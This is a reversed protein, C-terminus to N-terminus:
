GHLIDEELDIYRAEKYDAAKMWYTWLTGYEVDISYLNGGCYKYVIVKDPRDVGHHEFAFISEQGDALYVARTLHLCVLDSHDRIFREFLIDRIM